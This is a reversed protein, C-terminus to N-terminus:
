EAIRALLSQAERQQEASGQAQVDTLLSAAMEAEGMDIYARALDLKTVIEDDDDFGAADGVADSISENSFGFDNADEIQELKLIESDTTKSGGVFELDDLASSDDNERLEPAEEGAGFIPEVEAQDLHPLDADRSDAKCDEGDIASTAAVFELPNAEVPEDADIVAFDQPWDLDAQPADSNNAAGQGLAVSEYQPEIAPTTGANNTDGASFELEEVNFELTEPTDVGLHSPDKTQTNQADAALDDAVPTDFDTLDFDFATDGAAVPTESEVESTEAAATLDAWDSEDLPAQSTTDSSEVSPTTAAALDLSEGFTDQEDARTLGRHTTKAVAVSEWASEDPAKDGDNYIPTPAESEIRSDHIAEDVIDFRKDDPAFDRAMAAIALWNVDQPSAKPFFSDLKHMFQKHEGGAHHVALIKRQLAPQGPHRGLGLELSALAEDYLENAILSDADALLEDVDQADESPNSVTMDGPTSEALVPTGVTGDHNDTDAAELPTGWRFDAPVSKYRRRDWVMWCAVVLLLLALLLLVRQPTVLTGMLGVTTSPQIGLPAGEVPQNPTMVLEAGDEAVVDKHESTNADVQAADGVETSVTPVATDSEATQEGDSAGDNAAPQNQALAQADATGVTQVSEDTKAEVPGAAATVESEADDTASQVGAQTTTQPPDVSDGALSSDGPAATQKDQDATSTNVGVQAAPTDTSATELRLKTKSTNTASQAKPRTKAIPAPRAPARKTARFNRTQKTIEAKAVQKDIARIEGAPPIKLIAGKRILNINGHFDDLNAQYIALMMQNMSLTPAPRMEKAISWLTEAAAVPGYSRSSAAPDPSTAAARPQAMAVPAPPAVANPAVSPVATPAATASELPAPKYELMPRTTPQSAAAPQSPPAQNHASSQALGVPPDLLVTYERIARGSPWDAEVLFTIFPERIPVRSTVLVRLRTSDSGPEVRVDIQDLLGTREIGFRKFTDPSAIEVSVQDREAPKVALLPIEAKLPQNLASELQIQGFGLAHAMSASLLLMLGGVLAFLRRM